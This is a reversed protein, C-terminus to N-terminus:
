RRAESGHPPQSVWLVSHSGDHHRVIAGITGGVNSPVRAGPTKDSRRGRIRPLRPGHGPGERLQRDAFVVPDHDDVRVGLEIGVERGADRLRRRDCVFDQL